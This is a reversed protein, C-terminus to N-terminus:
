DEANEGRQRSRRELANGALPMKGIRREYSPFRRGPNSLVRSKAELRGVPRNFHPLSTRGAFGIPFERIISLTKSAKSEKVSSSFSFSLM